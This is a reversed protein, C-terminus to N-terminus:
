GQSFLAEVFELGASFSEMSGEGDVTHIWSRYRRGAELVVRYLFRASLQLLLSSDSGDGASVRLFSLFPSSSRMLRGGSNRRAGCRAGALMLAYRVGARAASLSTSISIEDTFFLFRSGPTM